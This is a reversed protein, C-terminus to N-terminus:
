LPYRNKGECDSQLNDLYELNYFKKAISSILKQDLHKNALELNTKQASDVLEDSLLAKNLSNKYVLVNNSVVSGIFGLNLWENACSTNSQIPYAGSVLAELFSTSIGDSKSSSLYIRSNRFMSLIETHDLRKSSTSFTVRGAFMQMIPEIEIEIDPTVSYFHISYEPFDLLVDILIPLIEKINGFTGGNSKVLILRRESAPVFASETIDFGGANPILPLFAGQFGLERALLYDRNCEASYFDAMTLLHEIRKTHAKSKSFFFLDSGWNTILIKFKKTPRITAEALLYGAHQIEIAHVLSFDLRFLLRRLWIKRLNIRFLKMFLELIAYDLYGPFFRSRFVAHIRLGEMNKNLIELERTYNRFKASPFFHIQDGTESFQEIWRALHISDAMGIILIRKM